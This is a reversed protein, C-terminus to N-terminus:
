KEKGAEPKEDAPKGTAADPKDASKPKADTKDGEAPPKSEQKADDEAPPNDETSDEQPSEGGAEDTKTSDGAGGPLPLVSPNLGAGGGPNLAPGGSPNAGGGVPPLPPEPLDQQALWSAWNARDAVGEGPGWEKGAIPALIRLRYEALRRVGASKAQESLTRYVNQSEKLLQAHAEPTPSVFSLGECSQAYGFQIRDQLEADDPQKAILDEYIGKAREYSQRAEGHDTYLQRMGQALHANAAAAKIWPTAVAGEHQDALAELDTAVASFAQIQREVSTNVGLANEDPTKAMEAQVSIAMFAQWVAAEKARSSSTWWVRSGVIVVLVALVIGANKAHRGYRNILVGFQDALLNTQLEQRRNKKM